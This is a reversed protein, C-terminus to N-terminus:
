IKLLKLYTVDTQQKAASETQKKIIKKISHIIKLNVKKTKLPVQHM